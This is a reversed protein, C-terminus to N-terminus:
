IYHMDENERLASAHEEQLAFLKQRYEEKDIKEDALLSDKEQVLKMLKDIQSKM